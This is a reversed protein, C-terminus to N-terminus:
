LIVKISVLYFNCEGNKVKIELIDNLKIKTRNCLDIFLLLKIRM